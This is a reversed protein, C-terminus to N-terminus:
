EDDLISNALAGFFPVEYRELTAAVSCDTGEVIM